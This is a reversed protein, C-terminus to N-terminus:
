NNFATLDIAAKMAQHGAANPHIGLGDPIHVTGVKWKGSNRATEVTDAVEFYGSLPAPKTRIWNNLQVRAAENPKLSQNAVTAWNDTSNTVPTITTGFVKIGRNALENYIDLLNDRVTAFSLGGNIDNIGHQVVAHTLGKTRLIRYLRNLGMFHEAREGSHCLLAYGFTTDIARVFFGYNDGGFNTNRSNIDGAGSIISDGIVGITTVPNTTKGSIGIPTYGYAGTAGSQYVKWQVTGDTVTAGDTTSAPPTAGTTGATTAKYLYKWEAIPRRWEGVNIASTAGWLAVAQWDWIFSTDTLKNGVVGSEGDINGFLALGAPWNQGSTVSVYTRIFFEEGKAFNLGIPDSKIMGGRGIKVSTQGNFTFPLINTVGAIKKEVTASVTIDNDGVSDNSGYFNGYDVQIDSFAYVAVHRSRYTSDLKGTFGSNDSTGM